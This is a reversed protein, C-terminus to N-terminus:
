RSSVNAPQFHPVTLWALLSCSKWSVKAGTSSAPRQLQSRGQQRWRWVSLLACAWTLTQGFPFQTFVIQTQKKNKQFEKKKLLLFLFFNIPLFTMKIKKKEEDDHSQHHWKKRLSRLLEGERIRSLHSSSGGSVGSRGSFLEWILKEESRTQWMITLDDDSVKKAQKNCNCYLMVYLVFAM